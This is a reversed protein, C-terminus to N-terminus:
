DAQPGAVGLQRLVREFVAAPQGGEILHRDNIIIAPVANIGQSRYFEERARVDAALRDSELVERARVRDLGAQGAVEALM